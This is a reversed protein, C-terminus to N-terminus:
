AESVDIQKEDDDDAWRRAVVVMVVVQVKWKFLHYMKNNCRFYKGIHQKKRERERVRKKSMNGEKRGIADM